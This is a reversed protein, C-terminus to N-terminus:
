LEKKTGQRKSNAKETEIRKQQELVLANQMTSMLQVSSTYLQTDDKSEQYLDMIRGQVEEMENMSSRLENLTSDTKRQAHITCGMFIAVVIICAGFIKAMRKANRVAIAREEILLRTLDRVHNVRQLENVLIEERTPEPTHVSITQINITPNPPLLHQGPQQQLPQSGTPQPMPTQVQSKDQTGEANFLSANVQATNM